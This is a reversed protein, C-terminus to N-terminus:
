GQVGSSTVRHQELYQDLDKKLYRIARGLKLFPPTPCRKNRPGDMRGKRLTARSLGVYEAAEAEVLSARDNVLHKM